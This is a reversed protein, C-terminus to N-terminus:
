NKQYMKLEFVFKGHTLVVSHQTIKSIVFGQIPKGGLGFLKSNILAQPQQSMLTTQLKLSSLQAQLEMRIEVDTIQPEIKQPAVEVQEGKLREYGSDDLQFLNRDSVAPFELYVVRMPKGYEGFLADNLKVTAVADPNAVATRPVKKLLLRGWMLLGILCCAVLMGFRKKDATIEKWIKQSKKM